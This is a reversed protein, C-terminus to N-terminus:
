YDKPAYLRVYGGVLANEVIEVAADVDYEALFELQYRESTESLPKNLEARHECWDTWVARFEPTDLNGPIRDTSTDTNSFFSDNSREPDRLSGEEKQRIRDLHIRYINPDNQPSGPQRSRSVDVVGLRELESMAQKVTTVGLGSMTALRRQSPFCVGQDDVHWILAVAVSKQHHSFESRFVANILQDRLEESTSRCRRRGSSTENVTSEVDKPDMPIVFRFMRAFSRMRRNDSNRRGLGHSVGGRHQHCNRRFRLYRLFM